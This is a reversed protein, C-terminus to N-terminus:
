KKLNSLRIINKAMESIVPFKTKNCFVNPMYEIENIFYERCNKRNDICCGFDIRVILSTDHPICKLAKKGWYKLQKMVHMEINGGENEPLDYLINLRGDAKTVSHEIITGIAYRYKNNIWYTRIEHFDHFEKVYRQVLIKDGMNDEYNDSIYKQLQQPTTTPKWKKFGVSYASVEPKTIFEGWGKREIKKLVEKAYTIGKDNRIAITDLVPLGNKELHKIWRFKHAAFDIFDPHPYFRVGSQRVVRLYRKFEDYGENISLNTAEFLGIVMDYQKFTEVNIDDVSLIDIQKNKNRQQAVYAISVDSSPKGNKESLEQIDEPINKLEPYLKYNMCEDDNIGVIIGIKNATKGTSSKRKTKKNTRKNTRRNAM